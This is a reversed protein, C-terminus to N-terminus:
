GTGCVPVVYPGEPVVAVARDGTRAVSAAVAAEVSAAIGVGTLALADADLGTTVLQVQGRQLAKAQMQTQWEDADAFRKHALSQVFADPGLQVLRQQADRFAPSGLGERCSSAIVLTGGPALIGLPAIMGKITQYYTADLPHGAASTVVTGFRRPLPVRASRACEAVAAAHSALLEGASVFSLRRHEDLVTNVGFVPGLKAAIALQERHLPNGDLVLNDASPHAM